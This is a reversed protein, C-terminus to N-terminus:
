TKVNKKFITIISIFITIIVICILTVQYYINNLFSRYTPENIPLCLIVIFFITILALFINKNRKSEIQFLDIIMFLLIAIRVFAGSLWQYISLFDLRNLFKGITLMRWQTYAPHKFEAAQSPGFEAIAASIPGFNIGIIFISFLFIGSFKIKTRVYQQILVLFFIEVLGGGLYVSGKLFPSFGNEFLPFLLSYDKYQINVTMVFLGFLIVFPLLIGSVIAITKIGAEAAFFCLIMFPLILVLKPTQVMYSSNVWSFTTFLTVFTNMILLGLLILKIMWAIIPHINAKLWSILSEQNTKKIILYVIPIWILYIFATFIVSVWSDRYAVSLISPLVIVHNMLGMTMIFIIVAQKTTIPKVM